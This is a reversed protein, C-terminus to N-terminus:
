KPSVSKKVTWWRTMSTSRPEGAKSAPSRGPSRTVWMLESGTCPSYWVCTSCSNIDPPSATVRRAVARSVVLMLVPPLLRSGLVMLIALLFTTFCRVLFRSTSFRRRRRRREEEGSERRGERRRRRRRRLHLLAAALRAEEPIEGGCLHLLDCVGLDAM